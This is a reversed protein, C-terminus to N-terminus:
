LHTDELNTTNTKNFGANKVHRRKRRFAVHGKFTLFCCALMGFVVM